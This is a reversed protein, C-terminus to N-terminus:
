ILLSCAVILPWVYLVFSPCGAVGTFAEQDFVGLGDLTVYLVCKVKTYDTVFDV